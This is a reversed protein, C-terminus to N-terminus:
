KVSIVQYGASQVALILDEEKLSFTCFRKAAVILDAADEEFEHKHDSLWKLIFTFGTPTEDVFNRVEAEM